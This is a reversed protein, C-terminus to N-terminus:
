DALDAFIEALPIELDPDQTRLFGDTIEIAAGATRVFAQRFRPNLVWINPIGFVLYDRLREEMEDVRDDPSIIEVVIFPPETIFRQKPRGGLIAVVDPIRYRTATVRMHAETGVWLLDGYRTLLYSGM